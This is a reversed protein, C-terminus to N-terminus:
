IWRYITKKVGTNTFVLNENLKPYAKLLRKICQYIDKDLKGIHENFLVYWPAKFDIIIRFIQNLDYKTQFIAYFM